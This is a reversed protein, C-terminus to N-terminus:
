VQDLSSPLTERGQEFVDQSTLLGKMFNFYSPLDPFVYFDSSNLLGKLKRVKIGRHKMHVECARNPIM